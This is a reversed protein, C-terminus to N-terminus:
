RKLWGLRGNFTDEIESAARTEAAYDQFGKSVASAVTEALADADLIPPIRRIDLHGFNFSGDGKDENPKVVVNSNGADEDAPVPFQKELERKVWAARDPLVDMPVNLALGDPAATVAANHWKIKDDM